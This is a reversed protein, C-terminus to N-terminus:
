GGQGWTLGFSHNKQSVIRVMYMFSGGPTEHDIELLSSYNKRHNLQNITCQCIEPDFSGGFSGKKSWIVYGVRRM